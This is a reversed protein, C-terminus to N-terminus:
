LNVDQIKLVFEDVKSRLVVRVWSVPQALYVAVSRRFSFVAPLSLPANQAVVELVEGVWLLTSLIGRLNSRTVELNNTM